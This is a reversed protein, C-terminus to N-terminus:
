ALNNFSNMQLNNITSKSTQKLDCVMYHRLQFPCYLRVAEARKTFHHTPHYEYRLNSSISENMKMWCDNTLRNNVVSGHVLFPASLFFFLAVNDEQLLKFNLPVCM